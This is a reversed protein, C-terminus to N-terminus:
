LRGRKEKHEAKHIISDMISRHWRERQDVFFFSHGQPIQDANHGFRGHDTSAAPAPFVSIDKPMRVLVGGKRTSHSKVDLVPLLM